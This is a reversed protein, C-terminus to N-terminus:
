GSTGIRTSTHRVALPHPDIGGHGCPDAHIDVKILNPQVHLLTHRVQEIIQHSAQTSLDEDVQIELQAQLQHGLWRARVGGVRQVQSVSSAAQEIEEVIEPDVEDMLRGLITIASDKAILLVVLTIVLGIIPDGQPFGALSAAAGLLVALSTLGDIRSHQGDVVLAASGIEHGVRIRFAAVTENGVAGIVAAVMVWGANNLPQPALIRQLSEWGAMLASLFITAVILIGAVDEARGYGYTFRRSAVRRGLLFAIWLPVATMADSFNHLTDAFLAVSGSALVVMAQFLATAGLGLLSVKVAWIGRESTELVADINMEGHRHSRTM